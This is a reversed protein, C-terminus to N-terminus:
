KDLDKQEAKRMLRKKPQVPEPIGVPEPEPTPNAKDATITVTTNQHVYKDMFTAFPDIDIQPPPPATKEKWAWEKLIQEPAPATKGKLPPADKLLSYLRELYEDMAEYDNPTVVKMLSTLAEQTEDSIHHKEIFKSAAREAAVKAQAMNMQKTIEEWEIYPQPMEEYNAYDEGDNKTFKIVSALKFRIEEGPSFAMPVETDYEIGTKGTRVRRLYQPPPDAVYSWREHGALTKLRARLPKSM